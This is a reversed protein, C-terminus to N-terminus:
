RNSKADHGFDQSAVAAKGKQSISAINGLASLMQFRSIVGECPQSKWDDGAWQRKQSQQMAPVMWGKGDGQRRKSVSQTAISAPTGWEKMECPAERGLLKSGVRRPWTFGLRYREKRPSSPCLIYPRHDSGSQGQRNDYRKTCLM